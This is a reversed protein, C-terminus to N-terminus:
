GCLMNEHYTPLVKKAMNQNVTRILIFGVGLHILNKTFLSHYNKYQIHKCTSCRPTRKCYPNKSEFWSVIIKLTQLSVPIKSKLFSRKPNRTSIPAKPFWRRQKLGKPQLHHNPPTCRGLQLLAKLPGPQDKRCAGQGNCTISQTMEPLSYQFCLTTLQPHQLKQKRDENCSTNTWQPTLAKFHPIM